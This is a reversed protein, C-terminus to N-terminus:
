NCKDPLHQLWQVEILHFEWYKGQSKSALAAMAAYDSDGGFIPFEKMVLRLSKDSEVLSLVEPLGKKCWSCNYDFFEVMTIDGNPNGAVLDDSSRFLEKANSALAGSRKEEEATQQRKELEKSAELLVEPNDLLYQRVIEGIEKRRADDFSQTGAVAPATLMLTALLASRFRRTM